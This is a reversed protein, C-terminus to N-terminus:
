VAANLLEAPVSWGRKVAKECEDRFRCEVEHQNGAFKLLTHYTKDGIITCSFVCWLEGRIDDIGYFSWGITRLTENHEFLTQSM